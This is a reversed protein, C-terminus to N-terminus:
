KRVASKVKRKKYWKYGFFALILALIVIVWQLPELGLINFAQSRRSSFGSPQGNATSAALNQRVSVIKEQTHEVNLSDKYIVKVTVQGSGGAFGGADAAVSAVNGRNGINGINGGSTKATLTVSATASDDLNLTGIFKESGGSFTFDDSSVSVTVGRVATDGINAVTISLYPQTTTGSSITDVTVLLGTKALTKLGITQNITPQLVRDVKYSILLTIPYYGPDAGANVGITFNATASSSADISSLFIRDAGVPIIANSSSFQMQVIVDKAPLAGVNRIEVPVIVSEGAYANVSSSVSALLANSSVPENITIPVEGVQSKENGEQTTVYLFVYYQGPKTSNPVTFDVTVAKSDGQAMDGLAYDKEGALPSLAIVKVNNAVGATTSKVFFRLQVEDGPYIRDPTQLLDTVTFGASTFIGSHTVNFTVAQASPAFSLSLALALLLLAPFWTKFEFEKLETFDTKFDTKLEM